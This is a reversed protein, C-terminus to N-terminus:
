SSRRTGPGRSDSADRWCPGESFAPEIPIMTAPFADRIRLLRLAHIRVTMVGRIANPYRISKM